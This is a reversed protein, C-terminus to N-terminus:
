YRWRCPTFNNMPQAVNGFHLTSYFNQEAEPLLNQMLYQNDMNLLGMLVAAVRYELLAFLASTPYSLITDPVFSTYYYNGDDSNFWVCGKGTRDDTKLAIIEGFTEHGTICNYNWVARQFGTYIFIMGDSYSVMMYPSHYQINTVIIDKKVGEKREEETRVTGREFLELVDTGDWEFVQDIQEVYAIYKVDTQTIADLRAIEETDVVAIIDGHIIGDPIFEEVTYYNSYDTYVEKFFEPFTLTSLYAIDFSDQLGTMPGEIETVTGYSDDLKRVWSNILTGQEYKIYSITIDEAANLAAITVADTIPNYDTYVSSPSFGTVLFWNDEKKMYFHDSYSRVTGIEKPTAKTTYEPETAPAIMSTYLNTGDSYLNVATPSHLVKKFFGASETATQVGEPQVSQTFDDTYFSGNSQYITNVETIKDRWYWKDEDITIKGIDVPQKPTGAPEEEMPTLDPNFYNEGVQFAENDKETSLDYNFDKGLYKTSKNETFTAVGNNYDVFYRKGDKPIDEQHLLIAEDPATITDPICSYTLKYESGYPLHIVNNEIYYDGSKVDSMNSRRLMRGHSEVSVILYCDPPLLTSGGHVSMEKVFDRSGKVIQDYIKRYERNLISTKLTFDLFATKTAGALDEANRIIERASNTIM